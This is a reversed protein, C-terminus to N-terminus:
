RDPANGLIWDRITDTEVQTLCNTGAGGDATDCGISTMGGDALITPIRPMRTGCAPAPQTGLVKLYLLSASTDGPVVSHWASGGGDVGGDVACFGRQNAPLPGVLRDYLGASTQLDLLPGAGGGDPPAHCKVCRTNFIAVVAAFTAPARGDTPAGAEADSPGSVSVDLRVDTSADSVAGGASGATGAAGASGATGGAGSTGGTGATGGSGSSGGTGASGGANTSGAAGDNVPVVPDEESSCAAASLMLGVGLAVYQLSATRM